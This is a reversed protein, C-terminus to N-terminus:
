QFLKQILRWLEIVGAWFALCTLLTVVFCVLPNWPREGADSM